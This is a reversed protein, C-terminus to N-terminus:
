SVKCPSLHKLFFLSALVVVSQATHTYLHCCPFGASYNPARCDLLSLSRQDIPHRHCRSPIPMSANRAPLSPRPRLDRPSRASKIPWGARDEVRRRREDMVNVVWRAEDVTCVCVCMIDNRISRCRYTVYLVPMCAAVHVCAKGQKRAGRSAPTRASAPRGAERESVALCHRALSHCHGTGRTTSCFLIRASLEPPVEAAARELSCAHSGLKPVAVSCTSGLKNDKENSVASSLEPFVTTCPGELFKKKAYGRTWVCSYSEQM